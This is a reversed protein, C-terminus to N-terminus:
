TIVGNEAYFVKAGMEKLYNLSQPRHTIVFMQDFTDLSVINQFMKLSSKATATKDPEDFVMFKSQYASAVAVKFAVTLLLAEFGSALKAKLWSPEGRAKYLFEIGKSSLELKVNMNDKTRLLINNMENQLISCAKLMIYNPLETEYFKKVYDLDKLDNQTEIMSENLKKLEKKDQEEQLSLAKNNKEKESNLLLSHEITKVKNKINEIELVKSQIKNEIEKIEYELAEYGVSNVMISSLTSICVDLEEKVQKLNEISTNKTEEYNKINEEKSSISSKNRIITNEINSIELEISHFKTEKEKFNREALSLNHDVTTLNAEKAFLTDRLENDEKQLVGKHSPSCEQGCTPCTPSIEFISLQKSVINKKTKLETVEIQVKEKSARLEIIRPAEEKLFTNLAKSEIDLNAVRKSLPDFDNQLKLIEIRIAEIKSDYLIISKELENISQELRTKQSKISTLEKDSQEKLIRKSSISSQLDVIEKELVSAETMGLTIYGLTEPSLQELESYNYTKSSLISSKAELSALSTKLAFIDEKVKEVIPAFDSNFIKKLIDRRKAPPVSAINASDQLHFLVNEMMDSDFYSNIFETCDANKYIDNKYKIEKSMSSGSALGEYCFFMSSDGKYKYLTFAIRMKDAGIKIFDKWSDGRKAESLCFAISALVASKGQGNEGGIVNIGEQFFLHTHSINMFNTLELETIIM